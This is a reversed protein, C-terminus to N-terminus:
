NNQLFVKIAFDSSLFDGNVLVPEIYKVLLFIQINQSLWFLIVLCLVEYKGPHSDQNVM